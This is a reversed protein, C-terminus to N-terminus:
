SCCTLVLLLAVSCFVASSPLPLKVSVNFRSRCSGMVRSWDIPKKFSGVLSMCDVSAISLDNSAPRPGSVLKLALMGEAISGTCGAIASTPFISPLLKDSVEGTEVPITSHLSSCGRYTDDWGSLSSVSSFRLWSAEEM